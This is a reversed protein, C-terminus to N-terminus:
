IIHVGNMIMLSEGSERNELTGSFRVHERKVMDSIHKKNRIIQRQDCYVRLREDVARVKNM